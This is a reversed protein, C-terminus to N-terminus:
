LHDGNQVLGKIRKANLDLLESSVYVLEDTLRDHRNSSRGCNVSGCVSRATRAAQAM